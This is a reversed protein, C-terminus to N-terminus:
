EALKGAVAGYGCGARLSRIRKVNLDLQPPVTHALSDAALDLAYCGTADTTGTVLPDDMLLLGSAPDALWAGVLAPEPLASGDAMRVCGGVVQSLAGVPDAYATAPVVLVPLGLGVAVLRAVRRRWGVMFRNGKLM